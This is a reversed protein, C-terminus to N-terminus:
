NQPNTVGGNQTLLRCSVLGFRADYLWPGRLQQHRSPFSKALNVFKESLSYQDIGNPLPADLYNEIQKCFWDAAKLHKCFREANRLRESLVNYQYKKIRGPGGTLCGLARRDQRTQRVSLHRNRGLKSRGAMGASLAAGCLRRRSNCAPFSSGLISGRQKRLIILSVRKAM